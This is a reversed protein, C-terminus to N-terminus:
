LGRNTNINNYNNFCCCCCSIVLLKSTHLCSLVVVVVVVFCSGPAPALVGVHSGLGLAATLLRAVLLGLFRRWLPLLESLPFLRLTLNSLLQLLVVLLPLPLFGLPDLLLLLLSSISLLLLISLKLLALESGLRQRGDLSAFLLRLEQIELSRNLLLRRRKITAACLMCVSILAIELSKRRGLLLSLSPVLRM